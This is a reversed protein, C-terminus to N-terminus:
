LYASSFKNMEYFIAGYPAMQIKEIHRKCGGSADKKGYPAM